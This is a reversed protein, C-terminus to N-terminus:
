ANEHRKVERTIKNILVKVEIMEKPVESSPLCMAKSLYHRAKRVRELIKIRERNKARSARELAKVHAANKARRRAECERKLAKNREPNEARWKAKAVRKQERVRECNKARYNAAHARNLARVREPDEAKKKFYSALASAVAKRKREEDTLAMKFFPAKRGREEVPQPNAVLAAPRRPPRNTVWTMM